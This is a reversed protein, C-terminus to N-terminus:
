VGARPPKRAAIAGSLAGYLALLATQPVRDTRHTAFTFNIRRATELIRNRHIELRQHYAERLNQARGVMLRIDEEVGEFETRGTFPLDEEAPDLVQIMHGRIGEAAYSKIRSVIEEAPSLFDSILVIQAYRPLHEPPPLSEREAGEGAAKDDNRPADLLAHAMRRLAVRGPVPALGGGLPAVSEGGQVLLSSLALALVTARDKKTCPAFESAYDMSASGDRWIWVSEAAERETERVFLHASRASHRWDVSSATDGERYRRFQWFTEGMGIRRRGHVGQAVTSAVHEAETVLPPMAESLAEAQERLGAAGSPAANSRILSM